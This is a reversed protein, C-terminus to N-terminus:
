IWYVIQQFFPLTFRNTILELSARIAELICFKKLFESLLKLCKIFLLNKEWVYKKNDYLDM